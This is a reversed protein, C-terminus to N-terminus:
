YFRSLKGCPERVTVLVGLSSRLDCGKLDYLVALMQASISEFV